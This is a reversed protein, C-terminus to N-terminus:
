WCMRRVNAWAFTVNVLSSSVCAATGVVVRAGLSSAVYGLSAVTEAFFEAHSWVLLLLM